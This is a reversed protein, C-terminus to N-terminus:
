KFPKRQLWDDPPRLYELLPPLIKNTIPNNSRIYCYMDYPEAGVSSKIEMATRAYVVSRAGIEIANRLIDFLMNLYIQCEKNCTPEFGLFHAELEHHNLITSYYGALEGDCYYGFIRFKDGLASKLSPLYDEHLVVMNFSANDMMKKYLEYLREKNDFIQQTTLERKELNGILKFARKARVRYKSTVDNLYDDFTTWGPRLTMVMNPHFTFERFKKEVFIRSPARHSEQVDKIFIGDVALGKDEWNKQVLILAEEMMRFQTAKSVAGPVFHFGHEGTLLLNGCVLLNHDLKSAVFNKFNRAFARIICPYKDKLSLDRISKEPRFNSIQCYAIGIPSSGEYFILYTFQMGRPPNNELTVLYTRQLFVNDPQVKEWDTTLDNASTFLEFYQGSGSLSIKESFAGAASLIASDPLKQIMRNTNCQMKTANQKVAEIKKQCVVSAFSHILLSFTTVM